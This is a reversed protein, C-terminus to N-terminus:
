KWNNWFRFSRRMLSKKELSDIVWIMGMINLFGYKHLYDQHVSLLEIFKRLKDFDAKISWKDAGKEAEFPVGNIIVRDKYQKIDKSM